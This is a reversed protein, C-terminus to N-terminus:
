LQRGLGPNGQLLGALGKGGGRGAKGGVVPNGAVAARPQVFGGHIGFDKGRDSGAVKSIAIAQCCHNGGAAVVGHGAQGDDVNVINGFGVFKNGGDIDIIVVLAPNHGVQRGIRGRRLDPLGPRQIRLVWGQGIDAM